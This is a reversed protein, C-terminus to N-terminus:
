RMRGVTERLRALDRRRREYTMALGVLLLGALALPIWRPLLDWVLAVEHVAILALVSGGVAVPAQRRRMSGAAVVVVAAVGLALRRAPEGASDLLTVASPGFGALLAPGYASWSHLQPRTRAALWGALLAVGAAPLTYAELVAVDSAVLLLWYAVLESGAGAAVRLRRAVAPEGPLLARLGLALGWLVCVAAAHRIAPVTLLLAALATAHAVAEVVPAEQRRRLLASTALTLAAAGLVWLAAWRLAVDAALAAALALGAASAAAVLWGATRAAFDRGAVGCVAAAVLVVALATVTTARTPLTGALGAGTAVVAVAALVPSPRRLAGALAAAVGIALSLTAVTPWPAHAAAAGALIAPTAPVVSWILAPRWARSAVLLAFTLLALATAAPAFGYADDPAAVAVGVGAPVGSWIDDLWAYPGALVAWGTPAVSVLAPVTPVAILAAVAPRTWARERLAPAVAVVAAADCLVALAAYGGFPAAAAAVGAVTLGLGGLLVAFLGSWTYEPWWRLLAVGAVVALV